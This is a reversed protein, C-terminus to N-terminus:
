TRRARKTASIKARTEASVEHGMKAARIKALAEPSHVKPKHRGCTCGDPCGRPSRRNATQQEQTAWRCNEPSYGKSGDIRDLTTGEPREGMDALFNEFSMWRECVTVGKQGYKQDPKCRRKMSQWSSYTPSYGGKWTHGHTLKSQNGPEFLKKAM